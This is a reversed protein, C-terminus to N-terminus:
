DSFKLVVSANHIVPEIEFNLDPDQPQHARTELHPTAKSLTGTLPEPPAQIQTPGLATEKRKGVFSAETM